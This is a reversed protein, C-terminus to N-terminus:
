KLGRTHKAAEPIPYTVKVKVEVRRAERLTDYDREFPHLRPRLGGVTYVPDLGRWEVIDFSEPMNLLGGSKRYEVEFALEVSLALADLLDSDTLNEWTYDTMVTISRVSVLTGPEEPFYTFKKKM